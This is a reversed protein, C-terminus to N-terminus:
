TKCNLAACHLALSGKAHYKKQISVTPKIVSNGNRLVLLLVLFFQSSSILVLAILITKNSIWLFILLVFLFSLLLFFVECTNM